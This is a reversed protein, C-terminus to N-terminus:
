AQASRDASPPTARAGGLQPPRRQRPGIEIEVLDFASDRDGRINDGFASYDSEPTAGALGLLLIAVVLIARM